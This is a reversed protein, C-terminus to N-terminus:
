RPGQSDTVPLKLFERVREHRDSVESWKLLEGRIMREEVGYVEILLSVANAHAARLKEFVAAEAVTVRFAAGDSFSEIIATEVGVCANWCAVLRRANAETLKSSVGVIIENEASLIGYRGDDLIESATLRGETHEIM